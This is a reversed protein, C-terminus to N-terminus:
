EKIFGNKLKKNKKNALFKFVIYNSLFYLLIIIFVCLFFSIWKKRIIDFLLENLYKAFYICFSFTLIILLKADFIILGEKKLVVLNIILATLYCAVTSVEAGFINVCNINVLLINLIIKVIGGCFLSITPIIFKSVGQLIGSTVQVMALYFIGVSAIQLIQSSIIIEQNTLSRSYLFRVIQESFTYCGVSAPLAFFVTMFVAKKILEKAKDKEQKAWLKSICPLISTSIGLSLVVPMNIIAGVIGTQLGFLKTAVVESYGNNKLINIILGSDILMTVPMILGGITVFISLSLISKITEKNSYTELSGALINKHKKRRILFEIFLYILALFESIAIGLVAGLVSYVAGRKSLKYALFLGFSMKSVQEILGSLASPFMNGYGQFFGRFGAIGGVFVIAPAIGLYCVRASMNGQLNSVVGAFVCVFIACVFSFLCIILFSMKLIKQVQLFRNKALNESVLKAISSPLGSSSITLMLTYLPFIMQYIGMGESGVIKTLPIRYVAGIIKSILGFLMLILAGSFFDKKLLNTKM